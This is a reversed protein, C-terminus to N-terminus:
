HVRGILSVGGVVSDGKKVLIEVNKPLVLEQRKYVDLHTYSVAVTLEELHKINIEVDFHGANSLIAGDKM